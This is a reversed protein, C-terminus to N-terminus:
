NRQTLCNSTSQRFIMASQQEWLSLLYLFLTFVSPHCGFSVASFFFSCSDVLAWSCYGALRCYLLCLSRVIFKYLLSFFGFLLFSYVSPALCWFEGEGEGEGGGSVRAATATSVRAAAAAARRPPTGPGGGQPPASPYTEGGESRRPPPPHPAPQRAM